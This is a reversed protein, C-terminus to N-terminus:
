RKVGWRTKIYKRKFKYDPNYFNEMYEKRYEKNNETIMKSKKILRFALTGLYIVVILNIPFVLFIKAMEGLMTVVSGVNELLIASETTSL